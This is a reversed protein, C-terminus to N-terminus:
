SKAQSIQSFCLEEEVGAVVHSSSLVIAVVANQINVGLLYKNNSQSLDAKSISDRDNSSM